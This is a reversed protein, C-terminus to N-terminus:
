HAVWTLPSQMWELFPVLSQLLCPYDILYVCCFRGFIILAVPLCSSNIPFDWALKLHVLETLSSVNVYSLWSYVHACDFAFFLWPCGVILKGIGSFWWSTAPFLVYSVNRVCLLWEFMQLWSVPQFVWSLPTIMGSESLDVSLLFTQSPWYGESEWSTLYSFM